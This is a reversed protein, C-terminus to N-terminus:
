QKKGVLNKNTEILSKISDVGWYIGQGYKSERFKPAIVNRNIRSAIEDKIIKELGTGVEIRMERNKVVITLLIGDNYAARGFRWKEAQGISYVDISQGILTDLTIVAIQSGVNKELSLILQYISDKQPPSLLHASDYIRDTITTAKPKKADFCSTLILAALGIIPLVIKAIRMKEIKKQASPFSYISHFKSPCDLL